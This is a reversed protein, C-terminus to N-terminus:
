TVHNAFGSENARMCADRASSVSTQMQSNPERTSKPRTERRMM